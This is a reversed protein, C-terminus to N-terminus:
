KQTSIKTYSAPGRRPLHKLIYYRAEVEYSSSRRGLCFDALEKTKSTAGFSSDNMKEFLQVIPEEYLQIYMFWQLVCAVLFKRFRSMSRTNMRMESATAGEQRGPARTVTGDGGTMASCNNSCLKCATVVDGNQNDKNRFYAYVGFSIPIVYLFLLRSDWYWLTTDNVPSTTRDSLGEPNNNNESISTASKDQEPGAIENPDMAQQETAVIKKNYEETYPNQVASLSFGSFLLGVLGFTMPLLYLILVVLFVIRAVWKLNEQTAYTPLLLQVTDFAQQLLSAISTSGTTGGSGYSYNWRSSYFYNSSTNNDRSTSPGDNTVGLPDLHITYSDAEVTNSCQKQHSTPPGLQQVVGHGAEAPRVSCTNKQMKNVPDDVVHRARETGHIVTNHHAPARKYEDHADEHVPASFASTFGNSRLGEEVVNPLLLRESKNVGHILLFFGGEGYGFPCKHRQVQTTLDFRDQQLPSCAWLLGSHSLNQGLREAHFFDMRYAKLM